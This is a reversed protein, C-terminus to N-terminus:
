GSLMTRAGLVCGCIIGLLILLIVGTILCKTGLRRDFSTTYTIAGFLLVIVALAIGALLIEWAINSLVWSIGAVINQIWNLVHQCSIM